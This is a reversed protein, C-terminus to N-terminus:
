VAAAQRGGEGPVRKDLLAARCRRRLRAKHGPLGAVSGPSGKPAGLLIPGGALM